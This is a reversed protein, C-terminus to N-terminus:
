GRTGAPAASLLPSASPLPLARLSSNRRPQTGRGGGDSAASTWSGESSAPRPRRALKSRYEKPRLGEPNPWRWYGSFMTRPAQLTTNASDGDRALRTTTTHCRLRKRSTVWTQEGFHVWGRTDPRAGSYDALQPGQDDDVSGPIAVLFRHQEQRFHNRGWRDASPVCLLQEGAHRRARRRRVAHTRRSFSSWSKRTSSRRRCRSHRTRRRWAPSAPAKPATESPSDRAPREVSAASSSPCTRSLQSM